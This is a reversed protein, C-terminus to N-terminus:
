PTGESRLRFAPDRVLAVILEKLSQEQSVPTLSELLPWDAAVIDRQLAYSSLKKAYCAHAQTGDAMLQMLEGADAFQQTGDVFPYSGATEAAEVDDRQRGMGDFAEFAFGLPDMYKGHCDGGCSATLQEVRERNTQGPESPPLLPLEAPPAGIKGCLVDLHLRLGRQVPSSEEGNAHAMLFPAQMFFGRRAPGLEREVLGSAPPELGYVEALSLGVFGVQSTLIERVGHGGELIRDFFLLSAQELEANLHPDAPVGPKALSAFREFRLLQGHFDRLVDVAARNELMERARSELGDVSDLEGAEAADLLADSPTTGLLWFSLKSAVEYGNLPKGGPGLESRYLFHPSQLLARVVLAAGNVFGTGYLEEGRAFIGQYTAEEEPTLPRRFARRGVSRVFGAADDGDHVKALAAVSGTALAAAAEAGAEFDAFARGDVFLVHENNSFDTTGVVPSQFQASLNAPADFRLIDAVAREWQSNTLRIVRAYIPAGALEIGDGGSGTAGASPAGAVGNEGGSNSGASPNGSAGAPREVQGCAAGLCPLALLGIRLWRRAQEV